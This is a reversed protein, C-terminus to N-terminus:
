KIQQTESFYKKGRMVKAELQVYVGNVSELSGTVVYTRKEGLATTSALWALLGLGAVRLWGM